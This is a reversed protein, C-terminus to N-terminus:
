YTSKEPFSPAGAFQRGGYHRIPREEDATRKSTNSRFSRLSRNDTPSLLGLELLTNVTNGNKHGRQDHVTKYGHKKHSSRGFMHAFHSSSAACAALPFPIPYFSAIVFIALHLKEHM